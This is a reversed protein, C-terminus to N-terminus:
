HTASDHTCLTYHLGLNKAEFKKHVECPWDIHDLVWNRVQECNLRDQTSKPGDAGIYLRAPQACRLTKFSQKVPALRNYILYLVPTDLM